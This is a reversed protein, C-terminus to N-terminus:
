AGVKKFFARFAELQPGETDDEHGEIHELLQVFPLAWGPTPSVQKYMPDFYLGAEKRDAISMRLWREVQKPCEGEYVAVDYCNSLEQMSICGKHSRRGIMVCHKMPVMRWGRQTPNTEHTHGGGWPHTVSWRHHDSIQFDKLM